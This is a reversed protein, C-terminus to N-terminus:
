SPPDLPVVVEQVGGDEGGEAQGGLQPASGAALDAGAAPVAGLVTALGMLDLLGVLAPCPDRLAIRCGFRALALQLHALADVLALDPPGATLEVATLEVGDRAIVVFTRVEEGAVTM